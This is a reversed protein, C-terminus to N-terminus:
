LLHAVSSAASAAPLCKCGSKSGQKSPAPLPPNYKSQSNIWTSLDFLEGGLGGLTFRLKDNLPPDVSNPPSWTAEWRM